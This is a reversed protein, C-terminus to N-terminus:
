QKVIKVIEISGNIDEIQLLYMGKLINEVDIEVANGQHIKYNIKGILAGTVSLINIKGRRFNNNMTLLLKNSVPNPYATIASSGNGCSTPLIKFYVERGDLDTQKLRYYTKNEFPHADTVSYSNNNAGSASANVV